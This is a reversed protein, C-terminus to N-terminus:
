LGGCWRTHLNEAWQKWQFIRAAQFVMRSGVIKISQLVNSSRGKTSLQFGSAVPVNALVFMRRILPNSSESVVWQLPRVMMGTTDGYAFDGEGAHALGLNHGVEHVQASVYM